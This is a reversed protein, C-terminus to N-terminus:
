HADFRCWGRNGGPIADTEAPDAINVMVDVREGGATVAPEAANQGAEARAEDYAARDRQFRRVADADPAVIM